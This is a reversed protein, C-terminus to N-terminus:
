LMKYMQLLNEENETKNPLLSFGNENYFEILKPNNKLEVLIIRGGILISAEKIYEYTYRLIEKGSINARYLDNKAIQGVLFTSLESVSNYLGDIKKRQTKSIEEPLHLVKTSLAFYALIEFKKEKFQEEDLIFYTRAKSKRQFLLSKEKLFFEIDRDDKCSFTNIIEEIVEVPLIDIM